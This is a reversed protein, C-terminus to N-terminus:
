ALLPAYGDLVRLIEDRGLDPVELLVRQIGAERFAALTAADPPPRFVTISLTGFDRGAAEAARRLRAVQNKADFDPRFRPLWGDCYEVV